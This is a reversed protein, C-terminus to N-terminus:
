KRCCDQMQCWEVAGDPRECALAKKWHRKREREKCEQGNVQSRWSGQRGFCTQLELSLQVKRRGQCQQCYFNADAQVEGPIDERSRACDENVRQLHHEQGSCQNCGSWMKWDFTVINSLFIVWSGWPVGTNISSQVDMLLVWFGAVMKSFVLRRWISSSCRCTTTLQQVTRSSPTQFSPISIFRFKKKTMQIQFTFLAAKLQSLSIGVLTCLKFKRRIISQSHKQLTMNPQLVGQNSLKGGSM